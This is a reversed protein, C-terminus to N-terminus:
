NEVASSYTDPRVGIINRGLGKIIGAWTNQWFFYEYKHRNHERM